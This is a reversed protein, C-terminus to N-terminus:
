RGQTLREAIARHKAALVPNGATYYYTALTQHTPLHNPDLQLAIQLWRLAEEPQAAHLAIVAIQHPIAPDNPSQQMPGAILKNIQELDTQLRHVAAEETAAEATRGARALAQSYQRRFLLNGPDSRTARRYYDVAAGTDGDLDAYRGREALAAAHDPFRRLCDDIAARAENTRGQLGLAAAWDYAVEANDPLRDRLVALHTLAEEGYFRRLLGTALRLRAEDHEPDLEVVRRYSALSEDFQMRQEQLKGRLLLATTDDPDGALWEDLLRDAEPWRFRYVFGTVLAERAAGTQPGGTAIRALLPAAAADVDGRAARLLLREFVLADDDGRDAWYDDLIREAEEYHGSRRTVRAMLLRVEGNHPRIVACAQLHHAAEANHGRAVAERAARLHFLFYFYMGAAVLLVAALLTLGVTRAAWL